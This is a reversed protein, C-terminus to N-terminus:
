WAPSAGVGGEMVGAELVCDGCHVKYGVLGCKNYFKYKADLLSDGYAKRVALLKTYNNLISDKTKMSKEVNVRKYNSNVYTWPKGGSFGANKTSDWQMVTRTHDWTTEKLKNFDNM